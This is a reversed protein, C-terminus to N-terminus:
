GNSNETFNYKEQHAYEYTEGFCRTKVYRDAHELADFCYEAGMQMKKWM